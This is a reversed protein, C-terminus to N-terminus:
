SLKSDVTALIGKEWLELMKKERGSFDDEQNKGSLDLAPVISSKSLAEEEFGASSLVDSEMKQKEEAPANKAVRLLEEAESKTSGMGVLNDLIEMDSVGM